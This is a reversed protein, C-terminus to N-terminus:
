TLFLSNDGPTNVGPDSMYQM